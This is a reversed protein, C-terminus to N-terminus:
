PTDFPKHGKNKIFKTVVFLVGLLAMIILLVISAQFKGMTTNKLAIYGFLVSLFYLFIVIQRQNLGMDMLRHHIHSRDAKFPSKGKIIRSIIVWFADLIPIGLVLFATAVKGGSVIATIALIFGLFLSGSDGLFIKAPNFNYPIFGLISGGLIALLLATAPQNVTSSISLLFLIIMAIFSIGSALGDIGDLWNIVNVMLVVWLIVFVASLNGLVLLDGFPNTFWWIKIGSLVVILGALLIWLLKQWPAMSKIDDRAGVAFLLTSGLIVGLLNKDVGLIKEPSFNFSDHKFVAYFSIVLIWSVFIAVGGLRAIPIKHIHRGGPQDVYNRSLAFKRVLPTAVLSLVLASVFPVIYNAM